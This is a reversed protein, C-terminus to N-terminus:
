GSSGRRSTRASTHHLDVLVARDVVSVRVYADGDSEEAAWTEVTAEVTAELAARPGELAAHRVLARVDSLLPLRGTVAGLLLWGRAADIPTLAAAAADLLDDLDLSRELDETEVPPPDADLVSLIEGLRQRLAAVTAEDLHQRTEDEPRHGVTPRVRQELREWRGGARPAAM